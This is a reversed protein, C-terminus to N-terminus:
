DGNMSLGFHIEENMLWYNILLNFWYWRNNCTKIHCPICLPVFPWSKGNCIDLKDYDIHHIALKYKRGNKTYNLEEPKGCCVCKKNFKIRIYERFENNFKPCYPEFSKGGKWAPSNEGRRGITQNYVFEPNKWLKKSWESFKIKSEPTNARIKAKESMKKRSENSMKMGLTPSPKGYMPNNKGSHKKSMMVKYEETHKYGRERLTISIKQKTEESVVHGKNRESMLKRTELSVMKGKNGESIKQKHEESLKKGKKAM